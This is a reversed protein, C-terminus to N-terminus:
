SVIGRDVSEQFSKNLMAVYADLDTIKMNYSKGMAEVEQRSHIRIFQDFKEVYRYMPDKSRAKGVDQIAFKIKARDKLVYDYWKGNYSSKLKDSLLQVTSDDLDKIGYLRDIALLVVRNYTTNKSAEWFPKVRKWKE